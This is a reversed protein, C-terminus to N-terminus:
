PQQGNIKAQLAPVAGAQFEPEITQATHLAAAYAAKAEPIRHLGDLADQAAPYKSHRTGHRRPAFPSDTRVTPEPGASFVVHRHPAPPSAM